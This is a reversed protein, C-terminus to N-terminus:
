KQTQLSSGSQPQLGPPKPSVSLRTRPLAPQNNRDWPQSNNIRGGGLKKVEFCWHGGSGCDDLLTLAVFADISIRIGFKFARSTSLSCTM